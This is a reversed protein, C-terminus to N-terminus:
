DGCGGGSSCSSCSSSCSSPATDSTDAGGTSVDLTDLTDLASTDVTVEPVKVDLNSSGPLLETRPGSSLPAANASDSMMWYYLWFNSSGSDVASSSTASSSANPREDTKVPVSSTAHRQHHEVVAKKELSMISSSADRQHRLHDLSQVISRELKLVGQELAYLDLEVTAKKNTRHRHLKNYAPVLKEQWSEVAEYLPEFQMVQDSAYRSQAQLKAFKEVVDQFQPYDKVIANAKQKPFEDADVLAAAAFSVQRAVFVGDSVPVVIAAEFRALAEKTRDRSLLADERDRLLNKHKDAIRRAGDVKELLNGHESQYDRLCKLVRRYSPSMVYRLVSTEAYNNATLAPHKFFFADARLAEVQEKTALVHEAKKALPTAERLANDIKDLRTAALDAAITLSRRLGEDPVSRNKILAQRPSSGFGWQELKDVVQDPTNGTLMDKFSTHLVEYKISTIGEVEGTVYKKENNLKQHLQTLQQTLAVIGEYAHQVSISIAM